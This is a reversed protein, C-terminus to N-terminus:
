ALVEEIGDVAPGIFRDYLENVDEATLALFQEDSLVERNYLIGLIGESNMVEYGAEDAIRDIHM